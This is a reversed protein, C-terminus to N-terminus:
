ETRDSAALHAAATAAPTLSPCHSSDDVIFILLLSAQILKTHFTTYPFYTPIPITQGGAHGAPCVILALM